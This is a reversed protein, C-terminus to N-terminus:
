HKVLFSVKAHIRFKTVKGKEVLAEIHDVNLQLINEVTKSAEIAASKIGEDVSAGESIVEIVKVISM